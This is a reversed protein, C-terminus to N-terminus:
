LTVFVGKVTMTSRNTNPKRTQHKREKRESL